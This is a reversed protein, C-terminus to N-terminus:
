TLQGRRKLTRYVLFREHGTLAAVIGERAGPRRAGETRVIDRLCTRYVPCDKCVAKAKAIDEPLSGPFMTEPDVRVCNGRRQWNASGTTTNPTARSFSSHKNM